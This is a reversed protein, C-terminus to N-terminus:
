ALKAATMETLRAMLSRLHDSQLGCLAGGRRLVLGHLATAGPLVAEM